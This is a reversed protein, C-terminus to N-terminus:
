ALNLKLEVRARNLKIQYTCESLHSSLHALDPVATLQADTDSLALM